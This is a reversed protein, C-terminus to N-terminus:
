SVIGALDKLAGENTTLKGNQMRKPLRLVDYLLIKAQANSNGNFELYEAREAGGCEACTSLLAEELESVTKGNPILGRKVALRQLDAKRYGPPLGACEWCAAQKKSGHGCCPCTPEIQEFLHLSGDLREAEREILPIALANLGEQLEDYREALRTVRERRLQEDVRLGRALMDVCPLMLSREHDYVSLAGERKVKPYFHEFIDLTVACDKGNLIYREEESEFEYDKWWPDITVLSALFSLAKRTMKHRSSGEAKGALEPYLAHWAIQVDHNDCAIDWEYRYKLCFLDYIGNAWVVELDPDELLQKAGSVYEPLFVVAEGSEGAFGICALTGDRRTEIDSAIRGYGRLYRAADEGEASGTIIQVERRPRCLDGHREIHELLEKARSLDFSLLTRFPKFSNLADTGERRGEYGPHVTTLVPAIESDWVYGRRQEMGGEWEPLLALAAENGLAVILSPSREELTAILDQRDRHPREILLVDVAERRIGAEALCADFLREARYRLPGFLVFAIKPSM